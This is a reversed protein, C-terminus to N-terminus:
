GSRLSAWGRSRSIGARVAPITRRCGRCAPRTPPPWIGARRASNPTGAHGPNEEAAIEDGYGLRVAFPLLDLRRDKAGDHLMEHRARRDEVAAGLSASSSSNKSPLSASVTAVMLSSISVRTARRDGIVAAVDGEPAKAVADDIEVHLARARAARGRRRRELM